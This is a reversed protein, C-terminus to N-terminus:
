KECREKLLFYKKDACKKCITHYKLIEKGCECKM